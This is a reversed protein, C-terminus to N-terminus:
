SRGAWKETVQQAATAWRTLQEPRHGVTHIDSLNLDMILDSGIEMQREVEARMQEEDFLLINDGPHVHREIVVDRGIEPALSAFNSWPSVHFRRLNPTAKIVRYKATLDECGHFYVRGPQYLNALREHYPQLFEEFMAPGISAASQASIYAWHSELGASEALVAPGMEEYHVRCGLWSGPIDFLRREDVQRLFRETGTTVFDMLRHVLGPNDVFDFLLNDMGRLRVVTEFPSAGIRDAGVIVPLRDEVLSRAEDVRRRTEDEDIDFLPYRLRDLDAESEIVPVPKYAGGTDYGLAAERRELKVGWMEDGPTRYVTGIQLIPLIVDDDPIYCHKYLRQVLQLEVSRALGEHHILDKEAIIEQWVTSYGGNVGLHVHVPVKPVKELHQHRTWMAKRAAYRPDGCAEILRDVLPRLARSSESLTM